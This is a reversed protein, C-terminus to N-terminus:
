QKVTPFIWSQIMTIRGFWFILILFSRLNNVEFNQNIEWDDLCIVPENPDALYAYSLQISSLM